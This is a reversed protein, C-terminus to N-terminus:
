VGSFPNPRFIIPAGIDEFVYSWNSPYELYVGGSRKPTGMQVERQDLHEAAPWIPESLPAYDMLGVANGRQVVRVPTSTAVTQKRPLGNIPQRFVFRPGGAGRQQISEQWVLTPTAGAGAAGQLFQYRGMVVVTYTRYTTFEANTRGDEPYYPPSVIRTGGLPSIGPLMRILAGNNAFWTLPLFNISFALELGTVLVTLSVPDTAQLFGNITWTEECGYLLGTADNTM